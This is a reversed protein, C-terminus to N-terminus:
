WFGGALRSDEREEEEQREPKKKAVFGLQFSVGGSIFARGASAASFAQGATSGRRLSFSISKGGILVPWRRRAGEEDVHM